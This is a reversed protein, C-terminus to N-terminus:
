ISQQLANNIEKKLHEKFKHILKEDETKIFNILIVYAIPFVFFFPFPIGLDFTLEFFLVLVPLLLIFTLWYKSKTKLIITSESDNLEAIKGEAIIDSKTNAYNVDFLLNSGFSFNLSIIFSNESLWKFHFNKGRSDLTKKLEKIGLNVQIKKNKPKLHKFFNM